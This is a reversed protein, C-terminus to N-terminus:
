VAVYVSVLGDDDAVRIRGGEFAERWTMNSASDDIYCATEDPDLVMFDGDFELADQATHFEAPRYVVYVPEVVWGEGASTIHEM